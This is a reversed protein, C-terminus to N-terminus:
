RSAVSGRDLLALQEGAAVRSSTERGDSLILAEEPVRQATLFAVRAESMRGSRAYVIGLNILRAPDRADELSQAALIHEARQLQGSALDGVALSGQTYGVESPASALAGTPFALVLSATAILASRVTM